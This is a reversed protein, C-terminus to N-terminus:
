RSPPTPCTDTAPFWFPWRRCVTARIQGEITELVRAVALATAPREEPKRSLLRLILHCLAGPLAPNIEQPPQPTELLTNRIKQMASEGRFPLQGTAMRYLVCGLSFLDSRHTAAGETQEPAMYGPTGLLTGPLSKEADVCPMSALGFDLIKVRDAPAELWLNAPKIDRHILGREHAAALGTAAERGIRLAEAVSLMGERKLRNDLTEGLLLPMALYPM